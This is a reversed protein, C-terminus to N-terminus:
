SLSKTTEDYAEIIRRYVEASDEPTSDDVASGTLPFLIGRIKRCLPHVKELPKPFEDLILNLGNDMGLLM